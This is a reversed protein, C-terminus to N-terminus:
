CEDDGTAAADRESQRRDVFDDPFGFTVLGLRLKNAEYPDDLIRRGEEVEKRSKLAEEIAGRMKTGEVHCDADVISSGNGEGNGVCELSTDVKRGIQAQM